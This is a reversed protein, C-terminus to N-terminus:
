MMELEPLPVARGEWSAKLVVQEDADLDILHPGARWVAEPIAIAFPTDLFWRRVHPPVEDPRFRGLELKPPLREHPRGDPTRCLLSPRYCIVPIRAKEHRLFMEHLARLLTVSVDYLGPPAFVTM